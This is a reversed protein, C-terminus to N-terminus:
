DDDNGALNMPLGPDDPTVGRPRQEQTVLNLDPDLTAPARDCQGLCSAPECPDGKDRLGALLEDAGFLRCTLGTCVRTVPSPNRLLSYFLGTGWVDAEPVGTDASVKRVSAETVGGAEDLLPLVRERDAGRKLM